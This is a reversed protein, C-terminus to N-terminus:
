HTHAQKQLKGIKDEHRLWGEALRALSRELKFIEITQFVSFVVLLTMTVILLTLIDAHTM